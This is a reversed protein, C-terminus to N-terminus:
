NVSKIPTIGPVDILDDLEPYAANVVELIEMQIKGVALGVGRSIQENQDASCVEESLYAIAMLEEIAKLGRDRIETAKDKSLMRDGLIM